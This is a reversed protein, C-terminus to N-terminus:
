PKPILNLPKSTKPKPNQTKPKPNQAKPKPSQTKPTVTIRSLTQPVAITAKTLPGAVNSVVMSVRM